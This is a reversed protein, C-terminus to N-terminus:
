RWKWVLREREAIKSEREDLEKKRDELGCGYISLIMLLLAIKKEM